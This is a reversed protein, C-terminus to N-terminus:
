VGAIEEQNEDVDVVSALYEKTLHPPLLSADLYINYEDALRIIEGMRLEMVYALDDNNEISGVKVLKRSLELLPEEQIMSHNLIKGAANALHARTVKAYKRPNEQVNALQCMISAAREYLDTVQDSVLSKALELTREQWKEDMGPLSGPQAPFERVELWFSFSNYWGEMTPLQAMLRKLIERGKSSLGERIRFGCGMLYQKLGEEFNVMCEAWNQAAADRLDFYEKKAKEFNNSVEQYAEYAMYDQVVTSRRCLNRARGEIQQFKKEMEPMMILKNTTMNDQVFANEVDSKFKSKGKRRAETVEKPLVIAPMKRGIHPRVEILHSAFLNAKNVVIGRNNEM